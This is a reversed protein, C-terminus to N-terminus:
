LCGRVQWDSIANYKDCKIHQQQEEEKLICFMVSILSTNIGDGDRDQEGGKRRLSTHHGRWTKINKVGQTYIGIRHVTNNQTIHRKKKLMKVNM